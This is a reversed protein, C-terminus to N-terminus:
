AESITKLLQQLLKTQKKSEDSIDGLRCAIIVVYVLLFIFYGITVLAAVLTIIESEPNMPKEKQNEKTHM